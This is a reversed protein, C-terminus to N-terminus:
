LLQQSGLVFSKNHRMFASQPPRRHGAHGSMPTASQPPPRARLVVELVELVYWLRWCIKCSTAVTPMRPKPKSFKWQSLKRTVTQWWVEWLLVEENWPDVCRTKEIQFAVSPMVSVMDEDILVLPYMLAILAPWPENGFL